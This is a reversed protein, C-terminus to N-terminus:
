QKSTSSEDDSNPVYALIHLDTLNTNTPGDGVTNGLTQHFGYSNYAALHEEPNVGRALGQEWSNGDVIAGAADTNGDVGDSGAALFQLNPLGQVERAVELALHSSRGGLGPEQNEPLDMKITPEGVVLFARRKKELLLKRARQGYDAALEWTPRSQIPPLVSVEFGAEHLLQTATAELTKPNGVCVIEVREFAPDGPKPTESLEGNRGKLLINRAAPVGEGSPDVQDLATLADNYTTPDPTFLGSGLSSLDGSVIDSLALILIDGKCHAAMRGGKISSLHKRITNIKEIPLESTVLLNTLERKEKLTLGEPPACLLASAGGSLAVILLDGSELNKAARLLEQAAQVSEHNPEPHGGRYILAQPPLNESSVDKTVILINQVNEKLVETVGQVMSIAAKGIGMVTCPRQGIFTTYDSGNDASRAHLDQEQRTLSELVLRKGDCAYIAQEWVNVLTNRLM